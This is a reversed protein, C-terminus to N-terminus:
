ATAPKWGRLEPWINTYQSLDIRPKRNRFSTGISQLILRARKARARPSRFPNARDPRAAIMRKLLSDREEFTQPMERPLEVAAGNSAAMAPAPKDAVPTRDSGGDHTAVAPDRGTLPSRNTKSAVVPKEIVPVKHSRRRRMLFFALLGIGGVGLLGLILGATSADVVPRSAAEPEAQLAVLEADGVIPPSMSPSIEEAAVSADSSVPTDPAATAAMPGPATERAPAVNRPAQEAPEPVPVPEVTEAPLAPAPASDTVVPEPDPLVVTPEPQAEPVDLVIQPQTQAIAPVTHLAAMAAIALPACAIMHKSKTMGLLVPM